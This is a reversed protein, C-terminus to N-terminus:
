IFHSFRVYHSLYGLLGTYLLHGDQCYYFFKHSNYLAGQGLALIYIESAEAGELHYLALLLGAAVDGLALADYDGGM